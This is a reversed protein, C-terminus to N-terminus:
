VLRGEGEIRIASLAQSVPCTEKATQFAQQFTADDIGPVSAETRLRITTIKFGSPQQPELVCTAETAIREPTYGQRSLTASLAMSFCAAHAAAILEEPNTGPQQEFRTHFSYPTNQLVGSSTSIQGNGERLSGSWVANATREINAM